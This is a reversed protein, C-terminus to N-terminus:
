HPSDSHLVDCAQWAYDHISLAAIDAIYKERKHLQVKSRWMGPSFLALLGQFRGFYFFYFLLYIVQYIFLYAM